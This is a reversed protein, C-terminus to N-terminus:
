FDWTREVKAFEAPLPWKGQELFPKLAFCFQLFSKAHAPTPRSDLLRNWDWCLSGSRLLASMGNNMGVVGFIQSVEQVLADIFDDGSCLGQLM